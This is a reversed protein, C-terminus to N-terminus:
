WDIATLEHRRNIGLKAYVAQLQNGVTRDSVGLSRAIASNSLGRAAMGAVEIERPTLAVGRRPLVLALTKAGECQSIRRNAALIAKAEEARRGAQSHSRAAAVSTEAAFLLLGAAEFRDATEVLTSPDDGALARAQDLLLGLVPATMVPVLRELHEAARSPDGLRAVDFWAWVSAALYGRAEYRQAGEASLRRAVSLQGKAAALWVQARVVYPEDVRFAEIRHRQAEVLFEESEAIRGSLSSCLSLNALTSALHHMPDVERLRSLVEHALAAASIPRGCLLLATSASWLTLTDCDTLPYADLEMDNLVVLPCGCDIYALRTAVRYYQFPVGGMPAPGAEVTETQHIVAVVDDLRGLMAWGLLCSAATQLRGWETLEGDRRLEELAEVAQPVSGSFIEVGAAYSRLEDRGLPHTVVDLARTIVEAAEDFRDTRWYLMGALVIALPARTEVDAARELQKLLDEAEGIRHQEALAAAM